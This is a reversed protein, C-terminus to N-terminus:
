FKRVFPIHLIVRTGIVKGNEELDIFTYGYDGDILHGLIDFRKKMAHGSFSEHDKRQRANIEKSRERGVGNDEVICELHNEKLQLAIRLEKMGEKHLLGHVLANEAFPQILLPPVMLGDPLNESISYNFQDKFRLKELKLYINLLELEKEVEIFEKESYNLTKRVLNSFTTIYSYSNEVDGRLVLEQISNM